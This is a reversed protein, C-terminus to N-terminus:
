IAAANEHTTMTRATQEIGSDPSRCFLYRRAATPEQAQSVFSQHSYSRDSTILHAWRTVRVAERWRYLDM